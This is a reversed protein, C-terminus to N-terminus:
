IAAGQGGKPRVSEGHLEQPEANSTLEARYKEVPVEVRHEAAPLETREGQHVGQQSRSRRRRRRLWWASVAAILIAAAVGVGVGAGVAAPSTSSKSPPSVATEAASTSTTQVSTTPTLSHTSSSLTESLATTPASLSAVSFVEGLYTATAILTPSPASFAFQSMTCCTLNTKDYREEEPAAGGNNCCWDESGCQWILLDEWPNKLSCYNPCSPDQFTPDTCGGRWYFNTKPTSTANRCLGNSMCLEDSACCATHKGEAVATLNCPAPKTLAPNGSKYFCQVM